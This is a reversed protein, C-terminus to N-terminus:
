GAMSTTKANKWVQKILNEPIKISLREGKLCPKPFNAIPVDCVNRLAQAFSKRQFLPAPVVPGPPSILDAAKTNLISWPLDKSRHNM